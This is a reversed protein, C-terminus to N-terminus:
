SSEPESILQVAMGAVGTDSSFVDSTQPLWIALSGNITPMVNVTIMRGLRGKATNRLKNLSSTTLAISPALSTLNKWPTPVVPIPNTWLSASNQALAKKKDKGAQM